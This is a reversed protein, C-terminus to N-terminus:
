EADMNGTDFQEEIKEKIVSVLAMLKTYTAYRGVSQFCNDKCRSDADEKLMYCIFSADTTSMEKLFPQVENKVITAAINQVKKDTADDVKIEGFPFVRKLKDLEGSIAKNIMESVYTDKAVFTQLLLFREYMNSQAFTTIYAKKQLIKQKEANNKGRLSNTDLAECFHMAYNAGMRKKINVVAEKHENVM